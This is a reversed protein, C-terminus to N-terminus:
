NEREVLALFFSAFHVKVIYADNGFQYDESASPLLIPKMTRKSFNVVTHPGIWEEFPRGDEYVLISDGEDDKGEGEESNGETGEASPKSGRRKVGRKGDSIKVNYEGSIYEYNFSYLSRYSLLPFFTSLCPPPSLHSPLFSIVLQNSENTTLLSGRQAGSTEVIVKIM